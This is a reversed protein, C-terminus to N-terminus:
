GEPPRTDVQKIWELARRVYKDEQTEGDQSGVTVEEFPRLVAEVIDITQARAEGAKKLCLELDGMYMAEASEDILESVNRILKLVMELITRTSSSVSTSKLSQLKDLRQKVVVHVSQPIRSLVKLAQDKVGASITARDAGNQKKSEEQDESAADDSYTDGFLDGEDVEDEPDWETLEKVADKMLELWQKSKLLIFGPLGNDAFAVIEDCNGWIRGTAETIDKKKSASVEQSPQGDKSRAEVLRALALFERLTARTLSLCENTFTETFTEPRTLLAATVLSTLISEDLPKLCTAVVTPTFPATVALLSLKTVQAKLTKASTSLLLLPSPIAGADPAGHHAIGPSLSALFQDALAITTAITITVSPNGLAPM